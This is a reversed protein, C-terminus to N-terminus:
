RPDGVVTVFPLVAEVVLRDRGEFPAAQHQQVLVVIIHADLLRHILLYARGREATRM